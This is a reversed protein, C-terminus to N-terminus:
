AQLATSCLAYETYTDIERLYALRKTWAEKDAEAPVPTDAEKRARASVESALRKVVAPDKKSEADKLRQYTDELDDPVVAAAGPGAILLVTFGAILLNM